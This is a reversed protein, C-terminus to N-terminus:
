FFGFGYSKWFEEVNWVNKGAKGVVPFPVFLVVGSVSGTDVIQEVINLAVEEPINVVKEFVLPLKELVEPNEAAIAYYKTSEAGWLLWIRLNNVELEARCWKLKSQM